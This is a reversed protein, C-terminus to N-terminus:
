CPLKEPPDPGHVRLLTRVHIPPSWNASRTNQADANPAPGRHVSSRLSDEAARHLHTHTQKHLLLYPPQAEVRVRRMTIMTDADIYERDMNPDCTRRCRCLATLM